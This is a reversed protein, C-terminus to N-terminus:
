TEAQTWTCQQQGRQDGRRLWLWRSLKEGAEVKHNVASRRLCSIGLTAAWRWSCAEVLERFKARKREKAGRGSAGGM